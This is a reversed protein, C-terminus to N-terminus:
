RPAAPRLAPIVEHAFKQLAREREAQSQAPISFILYDLGADGLNNLQRTIDEASGTLADPQPSGPQFTIQARMSVTFPRRALLPRVPALMEALAPATLGDAHWGDALLVARNVAAPSNGAVWLPPGGLQVTVPSFVVQDFAYYKGQFSLPASGGRWLTRLVKLAEDMREGRDHFNSGLNRFESEAWGIGAALMVRGGSLVDATALQKAVEVPNRQPLVLSSIGLRIRSTSGALYTLTTVAEFLHGFDAADPQSLALHDTLWVSDFGLQEAAIATDLIGLRGAQPGYSPLVVGFKMSEELYRPIQKANQQSQLPFVRPTALTM